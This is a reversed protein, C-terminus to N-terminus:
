SCLTGTFPPKCFGLNNLEFGSRIGGICADPNLCRIAETSEEDIRYFEPKPLITDGGLCIMNDPCNNCLIQKSANPVAM